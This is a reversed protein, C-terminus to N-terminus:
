YFTILEGNEDFIFITEENRDNIVTIDGDKDVNYFSNPDKVGGLRITVREIMKLFMERETM